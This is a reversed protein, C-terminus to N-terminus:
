KLLMRLGDDPSRLDEPTPYRGHAAHFMRFVEVLSKSNETRAWEEGIGAAYELFSKEYEDTGRPAYRAIAEAMGWSRFYALLAARLEPDINTM